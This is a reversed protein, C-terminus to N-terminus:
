ISPWSQLTLVGPKVGPPSIFFRRAAGDDACGTQGEANQTANSPGVRLPVRVPALSREQLVTAGQISQGVWCPAPQAASCCAPREARNVAAIDAIMAIAVAISMATAVIMIGGTTM